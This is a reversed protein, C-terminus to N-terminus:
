YRTRVANDLQRIAQNAMLSHGQANPHLGFQTAQNYDGAYRSLNQYTIGCQNFDIVKVGFLDAIERITDNFVNITIGTTPNREPFEVAGQRECQMLTGAWVEAQPYATLIKSLMIAYAERFTTTDTPFDQSGDYTGMQTNAYNLDNTGMYVIIVDPSGNATHLSQCRTMCGAKADGDITTVRTGQWSNNVCLTMGLADMLKKWWTDNVSAVGCNNGTYYSSQGNPLYGTFTSISDGLISLKKGDYVSVATNPVEPLSPAPVAQQILDTFYQEIKKNNITYNKNLSPVNYPFYETPFDSNKVIMYSDITENPFAISIAAAGDPVIFELIRNAAEKKEGAFIVGQADKYVVNTYGTSRPDLVRFLDGPEADIWGSQSAITSAGWKLDDAKYIGGYTVDAKNFLNVIYQPDYAIYEMPFDANRIIMYDEVADNAVAFSVAVAGAPMTFELVGGTTEKKEGTFVHGSENRCVVHTYGSSRADKIKFVDGPATKIWASQCTADSQIWRLTDASYFGGQTIKTRDFLNKIQFPIYKHPFVSNKVIMYSDVAENAFAISVAVAKDPTVFELVDNTAPKKIGAFIVGDANKYVVNTYGSTRPDIVRFIDGPETLIWDSQSAITSAGWRLNDALYIGGETIRNRDFLNEFVHSDETKNDWYSIKLPPISHELLRSGNEIKELRQGLTEEGGRAETIEASMEELTPASDSFTKTNKFQEAM